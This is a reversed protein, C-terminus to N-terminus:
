PYQPDNPNDAPLHSLCLQPTHKKFQKQRETRFNEILVRPDADLRAVPLAELSFLWFGFAPTVGQRSIKEVDVESDEKLIQDLIRKREEMENEALAIADERNYVAQVSMSLTSNPTSLGSSQDGLDPAWRENERAIIEPDCDPYSIMFQYLLTHDNNIGWEELHEFWDAVINSLNMLEDPDVGDLFDGVARPDHEMTQFVPVHPKVPVFPSSAIGRDPRQRNEPYQCTESDYVGVFIFRKLRQIAAKVKELDCDTKFSSTSYHYRCCSAYTQLALNVNGVHLPDLRWIHHSLEPFYSWVSVHIIDLEPNFYFIGDYTSTAHVYTCPIHVRYFRKAAARSERNTVFLKSMAIRERLEIRCEESYVKLIREHTVSQIWIKNRVEPPFKSFQPFSATSLMAPNLIQVEEDSSSSLADETDKGMSTTM